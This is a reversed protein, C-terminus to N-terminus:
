QRPRIQVRFGPGPAWHRSSALVLSGPGASCISYRHALERVFCRALVTVLCSALCAHNSAGFPSYENRTYSRGLFRDPDFRDPKSFVEPNRHSEWVCIRLLWGKPIHFGLDDIDQVVARYIFESQRMRLTEMVFREALSPQSPATGQQDERAIQEPWEPHDCAMKLIWCLLASMDSGTTTLMYILNGIVVPDEADDRKDQLISSLLCPPPPDPWDSLQHEVLTKIRNVADQIQRVSAKQPNAIDIVPYLKLLQECEPSGRAVAFFLHFWTELMMRNLYPLPDVGSEEASGNRNMLELVLQANQEFMPEFNQIFNPVLARRFIARYHSHQPERMYRLMGGPVFDSFPLYPTELKEEHDRLIQIGSELGVICATPRLFNSTKFIPGYQQSLKLYFRDDAWSAPFFKLSGPPLGRRKGRSPRSWWWEIAIFALASVVIPWLLIPFYLYVFLLTAAILGVVIRLKRSLDPYAISFRRSFTAKLPNWLAWSIVLPAALDPIIM